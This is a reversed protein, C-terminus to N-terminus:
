LLKSYSNCSTEGNGDRFIIRIKQSDFTFKAETLFEIDERIMGPALFKPPSRKTATSECGTALVVSSSRNSKNETFM